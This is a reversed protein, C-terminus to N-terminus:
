LGLRPMYSEPYRDGSAVGAPAADDIRRLDDPGLAVGLAALIQDIRDARSTGVLPVIDDGQALLWAVALSALDNGLGDAIEALRGVVELNRELNGV